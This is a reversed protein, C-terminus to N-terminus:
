SASSKGIFDLTIVRVRSTLLRVVFVAKILCVLSNTQAGNRFHEGKAAKLNPVIFRDNNTRPLAIRNHYCKIKSTTYSNHPGRPGFDHLDKSTVRIQREFIHPFLNSSTPLIFRYTFSFLLQLHM